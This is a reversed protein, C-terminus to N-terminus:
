AFRTVECHKRPGVRYRDSVRNLLDQVPRFIGRRHRATSEGENLFMGPLSRPILDLLSQV